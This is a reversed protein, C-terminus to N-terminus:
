KNRIILTFFIITKITKKTIKIHFFSSRFFIENDLKKKIKIIKKTLFKYM